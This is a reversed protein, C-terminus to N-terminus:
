YLHYRVRVPVTIGGANSSALKAKIQSNALNIPTQFQSEFEISGAATRVFAANGIEVESGDPGSYLRIQYRGNSPVADFNIGHIDFPSTIAGAPVIVAFNGLVWVGVGSTVNMGDALDPYLRSVSHDHRDTKYGRSYLSSGSENDAKNGVVDSSYTNAASNPPPVPTNPFYSM